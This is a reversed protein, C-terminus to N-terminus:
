CRIVILLSLLGFFLTCVVAYVSCLFPICSLLGCAVMMLCWADFRFLGRVIFLWLFHGVFSLCCYCLFSVCPVLCLWFRIHLGCCVCLVANLLCCVFDVNILLVCCCVVFLLRRRVHLM